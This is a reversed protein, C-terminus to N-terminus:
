LSRGRGPIQRAIRNLDAEYMIHRPVGEVARTGIAATFLGREREAEYWPVYRDGVRVLRIEPQDGATLRNADSRCVAIEREVGSPPTWALDTVAPGHQPNFFCPDRRQPLEQGDRRALVCARAFRGDDLLSDVRLVDDTSGADRLVTKAREYADLAAQYDGRMEADLPTTLTDVHLESLQEGLVTVDEEALQRATRLRDAVELERERRARLVRLRATGLVTVVLLIGLIIWAILPM